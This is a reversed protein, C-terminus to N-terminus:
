VLCTNSIHLHIDELEIVRPSGEELSTSALHDKLEILIYQM